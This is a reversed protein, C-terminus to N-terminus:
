WDFQRLPPQMGAAATANAVVRPASSPGDFWDYRRLPEQPGANQITDDGIPVYKPEGHPFRGMLAAEFNTLSAPDGSVVVSDKLIQGDTAHQEINITLERGTRNTIFKM